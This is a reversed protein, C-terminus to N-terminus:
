FSHEGSANGTFKNYHFSVAKLDPRSSNAVFWIFENDINLNKFNNDIILSKKPDLLDNFTTIKRKKWLILQFM